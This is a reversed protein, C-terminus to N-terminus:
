SVSVAKTTTYGGIAVSVQYTGKAVAISATQSKSTVAISTSGSAAGTYSIVATSGSANAMVVKIIGRSASIAATPPPPVKLWKVAASASLMSGKSSKTSGKVTFSKDTLSASSSVAASARGLVDTLATSAALTGWGTASFTVSKGQCPKGASDVVTFVLTTSGGSIVSPATSQGIIKATSCPPIVADRAIVTVASSAYGGAGSIQYRFFREAAAGSVNVSFTASGAADLQIYCGHGPAPGPDCSTSSNATGAPVTVSLGDSFDFFQVHVFKGSYDAISTYRFVLSTTSTPMLVSGAGSDDYTVPVKVGAADFSLRSASACIRNRDACLDATEAGNPHASYVATVFGSTFGAPGSIQYKFLRGVQAGSVTVTFSANGSADVNIYCTNTAAEGARCARSGAPDGTALALTLGASLDFFQVILGKGANASQSTFTFALNTSTAALLAQGSAIATPQGAGTVSLALQSIPPCLSSADGFNACSQSGAGGGGGGGGGPAVGTGGGTGSTVIHPWFRDVHEVAAGISPYFGGKLEKGNSSASWENLVARASESQADSNENKVIFTVHGQSDSTGTLQQMYGTDAAAALASGNAQTWIATEGGGKNNVKLTVPTNAVAAGAGDTVVYELTLTSGAKVYKMFAPSAPDPQYWSSVDAADLSTNKQSPLLRINATAPVAAGAPPAQLAGVGVLLATAALRATLRGAALRRARSAQSNRLTLVALPTRAM